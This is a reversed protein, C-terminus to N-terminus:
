LKDVRALTEEVLVYLYMKVVWEKYMMVLLNMDYEEYGEGKLWVVFKELFERYMAGFGNSGFLYDYVSFKLWWMMGVSLKWKEVCVGCDDGLGEGCVGGEVDDMMMMMVGDECMKLVDSVEKLIWWECLVM